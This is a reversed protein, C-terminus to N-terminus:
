LNAKIERNVANRLNTMGETSMPYNFVTIDSGFVDRILQMVADRSTKSELLKLARYDQFADRLLENRLSDEPGKEGPYVLFSDGAPFEGNADLSVYPNISKFSMRSNWFNYGWHLFGVVGYSYLIVGLARTRAGPYFIFRNTTNKEPACCYYAWLPEVEAEKFEDLETLVPIPLQCLGDRYFDLNSLADTCIYKGGLLEQILKASPGYTELHELHPEDSIHFIVKDQYNNAEFFKLLEPIFAKLFNRYADGNAETHWGFKKEGNVIVKPAFKAGWQSFLHAMEFKQYGCELGLKMWRDLLSFDFEYSDPAVENVTILQTTLREYGIATDLPPTFLPTLVRTCGHEVQNRFFQEIRFWHEESWVEVNYQQAICDTYFWETREITQPPLVADLVELTFTETHEEPETKENLIERSMTLSITYKGAKINEPLKVTIWFARWQHPAVIIRSNEDCDVLLDPLLGAHKTIVNEDYRWAGFRVPMNEVQRLTVYDEIEKSCEYKVHWVAFSKETEAIQAFALQFSFVEGKLATGSNYTGSAPKWERDAIVKEMSNILKTQIM